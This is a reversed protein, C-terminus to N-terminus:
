VAVTEDIQRVNHFDTVSDSTCCWGIFSYILARLDVEILFDLVAMM